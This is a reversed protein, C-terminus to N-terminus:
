ALRVGIRAMAMTFVLEFDEPKLNSEPQKIRRKIEDAIIVIELAADLDTKPGADDTHTNATPM